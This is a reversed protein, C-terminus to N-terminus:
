SDPSAEPASAFPTSGVASAIRAKRNRGSQPMIFPTGSERPSRHSFPRATCKRRSYDPSPSHRTASWKQPFGTARGAALDEPAPPLGTLDFSVRRLWEAPSAEPSPNLNERDLRQLIFRDLPTSPWKEDSIEAVPAEKPPVFSWHDQWEAGQRIWREILTIEADALRPGHKPKPMVEDPDSSRIRRLMDSEAPKGPVIPHEGSKGKGLAKARYIFSIEGAEKVGGHCATCHKTLIPRIERNFEVHEEGDVFSVLLLYILVHHSHAM